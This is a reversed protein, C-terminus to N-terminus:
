KSSDSIGKIKRFMMGDCHPDGLKEFKKLPECKQVLSHYIENMMSLKQSYKDLKLKSISAKLEDKVKARAKIKSEPQVFKEQSNHVSPLAYGNQEKGMQFDM